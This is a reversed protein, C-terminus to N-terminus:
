RYNEKVVWVSCKVELWWIFAVAGGWLFCNETVTAPNGGALICCQLKIWRVSDVWFYYHHRIGYTLPETGCCDLVQWFDLNDDIGRVQSWITWHGREQTWKNVNALTNFAINPYLHASLQFLHMPCPIHSPTCLKWARPMNNVWCRWM